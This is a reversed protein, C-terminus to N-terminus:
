AKATFPDYRGPVPIPYLGNQDPVVPPVTDWTINEPFMDQGKEVLEDWKVIKGSYTAMRGLVATMSSIAGYWGNNLKEGNVVAQQLEYHEQTMGAGFKLKLDSRGAVRSGKPTTTSQFYEAVDGFTGRQHRCQSYMKIGNDFTYEVFHADFIQGQVNKGNYGRTTSAGMGNAEVPHAWDKGEKKLVASMVWNGIDLNHVHQEGINDGSLWAFHYWNHVQYQMETM